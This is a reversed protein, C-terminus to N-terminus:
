PGTALTENFFGQDNFFDSGYNFIQTWVGAKIESKYIRANNGEEVLAYVINFDTPAAQVSIRGADTLFMGNNRQQFSQGGNDTYFIGEGHVAIIVEDPNARNITVDTVEKEFTNEWTEGGDKSVYFGSNSNIAGAYILDSNMPHVYVKSFSGVNSLGILEWTEGGDTSKFMGAGLYIHSGAVTGPGAGRVAEGTGAYIIDPNQEDYCLAGMSLGNQDDFVPKWTDGYNTTKWIGGAAAGLLLTGPSTPHCVLAKVRGGIGYPGIARWEPQQALMYAQGKENHIMEEMENIAKIRADRSIYQNPYAKQMYYELNRRMPKPMENAKEISLYGSFFNKQPAVIEQAYLSSISIFCILLFTTIKM